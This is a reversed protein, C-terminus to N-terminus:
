RVFMVYATFTGLASLAFVFIHAAISPRAPPPPPLEVQRELKEVPTEVTSESM